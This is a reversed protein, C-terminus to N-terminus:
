EDDSDEGGDLGVEFVPILGDPKRQQVGKVIPHSGNGGTWRKDVWEQLAEIVTAENLQMTNSGKM